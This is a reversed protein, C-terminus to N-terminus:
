QLEYTVDVTVCVSSSGGSIPTSLDMAKYLVANRSPNYGGERESITLVQGLTLGSTAVLTSAKQDADRIALIRAQKEAETTDGASYGLSNMQNAGAKIAADIIIGTKSVDKVAVHLRNSVVYQRTPKKSSARDTEEQWISYDSTHMTDKGIGAETMAKMVATMKEANESSAAIVDENRSIVSLVLTAEKNEVTVNGTGTVTITRSKKETKIMCSSFVLAAAALLIFKKM